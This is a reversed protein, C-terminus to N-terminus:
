ADCGNHCPFSRPEQGPPGAERFMSIKNWPNDLVRKGVGSGGCQSRCESLSSQELPGQLLLLDPASLPWGLWNLTGFGLLLPSQRASLMASKGDSFFFSWPHLSFDFLQWGTTFLIGSVISAKPQSSAQKSAGKWCSAEYSATLLLCPIIQTINQM